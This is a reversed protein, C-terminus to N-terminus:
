WLWLMASRFVCLNVIFFIRVVGPKADRQTGRMAEDLGYGVHVAEKWVRGKKHAGTGVKRTADQTFFHVIVHTASTRGYSNEVINIESIRRSSM